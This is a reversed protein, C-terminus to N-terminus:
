SLHYHHLQWATKTRSHKDTNGFRRTWKTLWASYMINRNNREYTRQHQRRINLHVTDDGDSDQLDTLEVLAM